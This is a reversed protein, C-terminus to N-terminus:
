PNVESGSEREAKLDRQMLETEVLKDLGDLRLLEREHRQKLLHLDIELKNVRELLWNDCDLKAIPSADPKHGKLIPPSEYFPPAEKTRFAPARVWSPKPDIPERNPACGVSGMLLNEYEAVMGEFARLRRRMRKVVEAARTRLEVFDSRAVFAGNPDDVVQAVSFPSPAQMSFTRVKM